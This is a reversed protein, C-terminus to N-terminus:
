VNSPHHKTRARRARLVGCGGLLLLGITGPEPVPQVAPTYTFDDLTFSGGAPNGTMTVYAIGAYALQLLENPASGADGSILENIAFPSSV